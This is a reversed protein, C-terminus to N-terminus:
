NIKDPLIIEYEYAPVWKWTKNKYILYQAVDNECHDRHVYYVNAKIRRDDKKVIKFLAKCYPKFNKVRFWEFRWDEKNWYVKNYLLFYIDWISYQVEFVTCIEKSKCNKVILM